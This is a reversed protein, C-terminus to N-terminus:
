RYTEEYDPEPPQWGCRHCEDPDETPDDCVPCLLEDAARPDNPHGAYRPWTEPDGPGPLSRSM